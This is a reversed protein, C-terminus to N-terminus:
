LTVSIIGPSRMVTWVSLPVKIALFTIIVAPAQVPFSTSPVPNVSGSCTKDYNGYVSM